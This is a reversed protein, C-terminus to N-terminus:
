RKIYDFLIEVTEMEEQYEKSLLYDVAKTVEQEIQEKTMNRQWKNNENRRLEIDLENWFGELNTMELIKNFLLDQEQDLLYSLDHLPQMYSLINDYDKLTTLTQNYLEFTQLIQEREYTDELNCIVNKLKQLTAQEREYHTQTLMEIFIEKVEKSTYNVLNKM